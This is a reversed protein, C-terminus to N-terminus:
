KMSESLLKRASVWSPKLSKSAAMRQTVSKDVSSEGGRIMSTEGASPAENWGTSTGRPNVTVVWGALVIGVVGSAMWITKFPM